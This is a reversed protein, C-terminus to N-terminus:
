EGRLRAVTTANKWAYIQDFLTDKSTGVTFSQNYTVNSTNGSATGATVASVTPSLTIGFAFSNIMDRIDELQHELGLMFSQGFKEASLSGSLAFNEPVAFGIKELETKMYATTEGVAKRFDESYLATSIEKSLRQNELYGNIFTRFEHGSANSLLKAFDAGDSVSMDAMVSLFDSAVSQDYGNKLLKDKVANIANYYELLKENTRSYDNLLSISLAEGADGGGYVTSKSFKSGFASLKASLKEQSKIVSGIKDDAVKAIDSYIETIEKKLATFVSKEQSTFDKLTNLYETKSVRQLDLLEQNKLAEINVADKAAKIQMDYSERIKQAELALEQQQYKNYDSQYAM